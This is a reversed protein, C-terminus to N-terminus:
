TQNTVKRSGLVIEMTLLDIFSLYYHNDMDAIGSRLCSLAETYGAAREAADAARINACYGLRQLTSDTPPTPGDYSLM